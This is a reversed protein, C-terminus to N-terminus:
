FCIGVDSIIAMDSSFSFLWILIIDGAFLCCAMVSGTVVVYAAYARALMGLPRRRWIPAEAAHWLMRHYLCKQKSTHHLVCSLVENRM